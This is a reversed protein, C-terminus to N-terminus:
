VRFQYKLGTPRSRFFVGIKEFLVHTSVLVQQILMDRCVLDSLLIIGALQCIFCPTIVVLCVAVLIVFCRSVVDCWAEVFFLKLLEMPPNMWLRSIPQMLIVLKFPPKICIVQCHSSQPELSDRACTVMM